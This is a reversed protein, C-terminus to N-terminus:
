SYIDAKLDLDTIAVRVMEAPFACHREIAEVLEEKDSLNTTTSNNPTSETVTFNQIRVSRDPFFREVLVVNMFTAAPSYSHRIVEAFHNIERPQPKAIYGHIFEGDRVQDMRSRGQEDQPHLVYRNSGLVIEYKEDLDLAMPEFFPAGYGVDALYDRGELRVISVVHV